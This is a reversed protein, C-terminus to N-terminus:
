NDNKHHSRPEATRCLSMTVVRRAFLHILEALRDAAGESDARQKEGAHAHDLAIGVRHQRGRVGRCSGVAAEGSQQGARGAWLVPDFRIPAERM